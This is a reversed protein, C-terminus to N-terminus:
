SLKNARLAIGKMVTIIHKKERNMQKVFQKHALFMMRSGDTFFFEVTSLENM